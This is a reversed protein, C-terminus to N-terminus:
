SGVKFADIFFGLLLGIKYFNLFKIFNLKTKMKKNVLTFLTEFPRENVLTNSNKKLILNVAKKKYNLYNIFEIILITMSIILGDWKLLNRFTNLFTGFLNGMVFGLFLSFLSFIVINQFISIKTQIQIKLKNIQRFFNTTSTMNFLIFSFFRLIKESTM